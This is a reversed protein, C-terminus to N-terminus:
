PSVQLTCSERAPTAVLPPLTRLGIVAGDVALEVTPVLGELTVFDHRNTLKLLGTAHTLHEYKWELLTVSM